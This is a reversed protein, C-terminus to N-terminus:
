RTGRSFAAVSRVWGSTSARRYRAAERYSDSHYWDLAAAESEFELLVLRKRSQSELDNQEDDFILVKANAPFATRALQEYTRFTSADEIDFNLVVYHTM